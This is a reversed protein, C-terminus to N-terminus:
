IYGFASQAELLAPILMTRGRPAIEGLFDNFSQEQM